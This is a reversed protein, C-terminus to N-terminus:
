FGEPLEVFDIEGMKELFTLIAKRDEKSLSVPLEALMSKVKPNTVKFDFTEPSEFEPDLWLSNNDLKYENQWSSLNIPIGKLDEFINKNAPCFYVNGDSALSEMYTEYEPHKGKYHTTFSDNNIYFLNNELKWNKSWNAIESNKRRGHFFISGKEGSYFINNRFSVNHATGNILMNGTENWVVCGSVNIPGGLKELYLQAGFLNGIFYSDSIEVKSVPTFSHDLWYGHTLNAFSKHGVIKIGIQANVKWFKVAAADWGYHGGLHGRWNNYSSECDEMLVNDAEAGGTLGCWGNYNFVCQRYTIHKTSLSKLGRSGNYNFSCNEILINKGNVVMSPESKGCIFSAYGKIHLGRLVLNEKRDIIMCVHRTSAEITSTTIDLEPPPYIYIYKGNDEHETIGYTGPTMDDLGNFGRYVFKGPESKITSHRITPGDPDVWEHKEIPVPLLLEGNMMVVESRSSEPKFILTYDWVMLDILGFSYPWLKKYIKPNEKTKQWDGSYDDLGTLIVGPEGEIVFVAKQAEKSWNGANMQMGGERYIGAAIKIKVGLGKQLDSKALAFAKGVTKLAKSEATGSNNDAGSQANVYYTNKVATEDINAGTVAVAADHIETVPLRSILWNFNYETYAYVPYDPVLGGSEVYNGALDFFNFSEAAPLRFNRKTGPTKSIFAISGSASQFTTIFIDDHPRISKVHVMGKARDALTAYGEQKPPSVTHKDQLWIPLGQQSLEMANSALLCCFYLVISTITIIM